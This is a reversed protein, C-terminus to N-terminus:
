IKYYGGAPKALPPPLPPHPSNRCPPTVWGFSKDVGRSAKGLPPAPPPTPFQPLSARGVFVLTCVWPRSGLSAGQARIPGLCAPPRPGRASPPFLGRPAPLPAASTASRPLPGTVGQRCWPAQARRVVLPRLPRPRCPPQHPAASLASRPPPGRSGWCGGLRCRVRRPAPTGAGARGGAEAGAAGLTCAYLSKARSCGAGRGLPPVCSRRFHCGRGGRSGCVSLAPAARRRRSVLPRPVVLLWRLVAGGAFAAQPSVM